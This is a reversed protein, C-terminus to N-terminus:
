TNAQWMPVLTWQHRENYLYVICDYEYRKDMMIPVEVM